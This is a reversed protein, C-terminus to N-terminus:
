RLSSLTKVNEIKITGKNTATAEDESGGGNRINGWALLPGKTHLKGAGIQSGRRWQMCGVVDVTCYKPTINAVLPKNTLGLRINERM